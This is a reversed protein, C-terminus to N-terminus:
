RGTLIFRAAREGEPDGVTGFEVNVDRHTDGPARVVEARGGVRILADALTRSQGAADANQDTYFMLFPPYTVGARVRLVPSFEAARDGFAAEYRRELMRGVVGPSRPQTADYRAGDVPIVGAIDSPQMGHAALYAPDTVALAILHAGASHGMLFLPRGPHDARFRAAAAAVDEAQQGANVAPVLRYDVSALTLGHRRVYEPLAHVMSKDGQSWGGGHAYLLLPGTADADGHVDYTQKPDPGYSVTEAAMAGSRPEGSSGRRRRFARGQRDQALVPSAALAALGALVIMRRDLSKM